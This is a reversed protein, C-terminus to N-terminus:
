RPSAVTAVAVAVFLLLRGEVWGVGEVPDKLGKTGGRSPGEGRRPLSDVVGM